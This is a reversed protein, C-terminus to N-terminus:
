SKGAAFPELLEPLRSFFKSRPIINELGAEEAATISAVDVHSVFGIVKTNPASAKLIEFFQLAEDGINLDLIVLMSGPALDRIKELDTAKRFDLGAVECAHSIKQSFLLNKVIALIM